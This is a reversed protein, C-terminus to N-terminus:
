GHLLAELLRFLQYAVLVHLALSVLRHAEMTGIQTQVWGLTFYPLGRTGLQWPAVAAIRLVTTHFINSDDFLLPNALYPLYLGSAAAAILALALVLQTPSSRWVAPSLRM